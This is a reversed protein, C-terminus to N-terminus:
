LSSSLPYHHHHHIIIIVIPSLSSSSSLHHHTYHHLYNHLHFYMIHAHTYAYGAYKPQLVSGIMREQPLMYPRGCDVEDKPGDEVKGAYVHVGDMCCAFCVCASLWKMPCCGCRQGDDRVVSFLVPQQQYLNHLGFQRDAPKNWRAIEHQLDSSLHNFGVEPVTGDGPVPIYQRVELRLPHFPKCCCRNCDDSVEDARMIERTSDGTLGAYISYTNGQPACPPWKCCHKPMLKVHQRITWVNSSNIVAWLETTTFSELLAICLFYLSLNLDVYSPSSLLEDEGPSIVSAFEQPVPVQKFANFEPYIQTVPAVPIVGIPPASASPQSTAVPVASVVPIGQNNDM